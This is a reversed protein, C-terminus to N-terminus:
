APDEALVSALLARLENATFPKAITPVMAAQSMMAVCTQLDVWNGGGSMAALRTKPSAAQTMRVVDFGDVDPMLVDTLVLDPGDRLADRLANKGSVLTATHGLHALMRVVTRGVDVDDEVVLVRAM